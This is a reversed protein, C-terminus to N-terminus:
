AGTGNTRGIAHQSKLWEWFEEYHWGSYQGNSIDVVFLLDANLDMHAKLKNRWESIACDSSVIWTSELVHKYAKATQITSILGEYNKDPAKLDYSILYISM